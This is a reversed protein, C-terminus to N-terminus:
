IGIEVLYEITSQNDQYVIVETMRLGIQGGRKCRVSHYGDEKLMKYDYLKVHMLLSILVTELCKALLTFEPGEGFPLVCELEFARCIIKGVM